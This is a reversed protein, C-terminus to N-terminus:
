RYLVSDHDAGSLGDSSRGVPGAKFLPDSELAGLDAQEHDIPVIRFAPRSRYLVTYSGGKSVTRVISPLSARLQKANIVKM